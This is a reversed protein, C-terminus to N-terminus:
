PRASPAGVALDGRHLLGEDVTDWAAVETIRRRDRHGSPARVRVAPANEFVEEVTDVPVGARSVSSRKETSQWMSASAPCRKASSSTISWM